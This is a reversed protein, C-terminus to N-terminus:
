TRTLTPAPRRTRRRARPPDFTEIYERVKALDEANDCTFRVSNDQRVMVVRFDDEEAMAEIDLMFMRAANSVRFDFHHLFSLEAAGGFTTANAM